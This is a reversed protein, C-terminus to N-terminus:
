VGGYGIRWQLILSIGVYLGIALTLAEPIEIDTLPAFITPLWVVVFVPGVLVATNIWPDTIAFFREGFAWYVLVYTATIGM